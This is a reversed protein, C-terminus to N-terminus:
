QKLALDKYLAHRVIYALVSPPLLGDMALLADSDDAGSVGYSRKARKRVQPVTARSVDRPSRAATLAATLAAAM